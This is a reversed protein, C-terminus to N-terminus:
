SLTVKAEQHSKGNQAPLHALAGNNAGNQFSGKFETMTIHGPHSIGEKRVVKWLTMVIIKLDLKFSWHDVYWTDLRFKEEWSLANRGNIQAWGTLGPRVNHRRMQELDYRNLYSMLLPRP